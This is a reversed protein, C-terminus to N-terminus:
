INATRNSLVQPDLIRIQFNNYSIHKWMNDREKRWAQKEKDFNDNVKRNHEMEALKEFQWRERIEPLSTIAKKTVILSM